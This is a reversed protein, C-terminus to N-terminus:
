TLLSIFAASGNQRHVTASFQHQLRRTVLGRLLMQNRAYGNGQVEEDEWGFRPPLTSEGRFQNKELTVAAAIAVRDAADSWACAEALMQLSPVVDIEDPRPAHEPCPPTSRLATECWFRTTLPSVFAAFATVLRVLPVRTVVIQESPVVDFEVPRPVHEPWPPALPASTVDFVVPAGIGAGAVAAGGRADALARVRALVLEATTAPDPAASSLLGTPAM